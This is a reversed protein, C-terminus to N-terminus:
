EPRGERIAEIMDFIALLLIDRDRDLYESYRSVHEYLRARTAEIAIKSHRIYMPAAKTPPPNLRAKKEQSRQYAYPDAARAERAEKRKQSPTKRRSTMM